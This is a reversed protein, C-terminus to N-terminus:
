ETLSPLSAASTKPRGVELEPDSADDIEPGGHIQQKGTAM